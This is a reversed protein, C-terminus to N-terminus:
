EYSTNLFKDGDKHYQEFFTLALFRRQTKHEGILM